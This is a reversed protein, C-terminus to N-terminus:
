GEFSIDPEESFNVRFAVLMHKSSKESLSPTYAVGLPRISKVLPCKTLDFNLEDEEKLERCMGRFFVKRVDDIKAIKLKAFKDVEENIDSDVESLHGGVYILDKDREPSDKGTSKESKSIVFIKEDNVVLVAGTIVQVLENDNEVKSRYDFHLKADKLVNINNMGERLKLDKKKYYGIKEEQM